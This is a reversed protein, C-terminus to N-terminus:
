LGHQPLPKTDEPSHNSKTMDERTTSKTANPLLIFSYLRASCTKCSATHAEDFAYRSSLARPNHGQTTATDHFRMWTGLTQCHPIHVMTVTEYILLLIKEGDENEYM